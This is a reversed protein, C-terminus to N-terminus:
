ELLLTALSRGTADIHCRGRGRGHRDVVLVVGEADGADVPLSRPRGAPLHGTIGALPAEKPATDAHRSANGAAPVAVPTSGPSHAEGCSSSIEAVSEPRTLPSCRGFTLAADSLDISKHRERRIASWLQRLFSWLM